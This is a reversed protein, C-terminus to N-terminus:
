ALEFASSPIEWVEKVGTTLFFSSVDLFFFFFFATFGAFSSASHTSALAPMPVASPVAASILLPSPCSLTPPFSHGLLFPIITCEPTWARGWIHGLRHAQNRVWLDPLVQCSGRQLAPSAAGWHEARPWTLCCGCVLKRCWTVAAAHYLNPHSEGWQVELIQLVAALPSRALLTM